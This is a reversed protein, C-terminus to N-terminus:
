KSNADDADVIFASYLKYSSFGGDCMDMTFTGVDIADDFTACDVYGLDDMHIENYNSEYITQGDRAKMIADPEDYGTITVHYGSVTFGLCGLCKKIIMDKSNWNTCYFVALSRPDNQDKDELWQQFDEISQNAKSKICYAYIKDSSLLCGIMVQFTMSVSQYFYLEYISLYSLIQKTIDTGILDVMSQSKYYFECINRDANMTTEQKLFTKIKILPITNLIPQLDTLCDAEDIQKGLKEKMGDMSEM